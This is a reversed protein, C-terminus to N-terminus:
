YKGNKNNRIIKRYHSIVNIKKFSFHKYISIPLFAFYGFISVARIFMPAICFMGLKIKKYKYEIHKHWNKVLIIYILRCFAPSIDMFISVISFINTYGIWVIKNFIEKSQFDVRYRAFEMLESSTILGQKYCSTSLYCSYNFIRAIFSIANGIVPVSNLVAHTTETAVARGAKDPNNLIDAVDIISGIMPIDKVVNKIGEEAFEQGKGEVFSKPDKAFNYIDEANSGELITGTTVDSYLNNLDKSTDIVAGTDGIKIEGYGDGTGERVLVDKGINPIDLKLEGLTENIGNSIDPTIDINPLNINLEPIDPLSINPVELSPINLEPTKIELSPIYTEPIEINLPPLDIVPFDFNLEPKPTPINIEPVEIDGFNIDPFSTSIDPLNASFDPLKIEPVNFENTQKEENNIIENEKNTQQNKNEISIDFNLNKKLNQMVDSNDISLKNSNKNVDDFLLPSMTKFEQNIPKLSLLDEFIGM